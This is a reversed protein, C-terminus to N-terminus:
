LYITHTGYICVTMQIGNLFAWICSCCHWSLVSTCNHVIRSVSNYDPPASHTAKLIKINSFYSLTLYKWTKAAASRMNYQAKKGKEYPIWSIWAINLTMSAELPCSYRLLASSGAVHWLSIHFSSLTYKRWVELREERPLYWANDCCM